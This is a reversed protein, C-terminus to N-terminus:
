IRDLIVEICDTAVQKPNQNAEIMEIREEFAASKVLQKYGDRIKKHFDLKEKDFRNTERNNTRIRELGVEPEIDFYLTLDPMIKDTIPKNIDKVVDLGLGRVIGQYVYSSDIFRDCIVVKGEELAPAIVNKVIENRSATFLMAETLVDMEENVLVERIRESVRLGGPERTVLCDFGREELWSKIEKIATTKGSGEGGEITIFMGKNNKEM